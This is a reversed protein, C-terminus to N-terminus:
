SAILSKDVEVGLGPGQPVAIFGDRDVQPADSMISFRHRYDGIPPDHLLELFPAHPWSAVLHLHAIVGINGGGHHPVIKKGHLEALVGVKRLATVGNLVMSEPQLVDYVGMKVMDVFEHIGVNNEGGSLPIEVRRSIEALQEYAYRALPEELWYVGLRQMEQATECARRFDWRVGPQWDGSSQAQNGDVMITMRDGVAKRVAEVTRVDEKMTEHHLRLKIAKWGESVLKQALAAREEPTGLSVMSAYPIVKDKGGGWLKYLPQGTAKGIIDWLAIDVGATGRYPMTYVHYRLTHAHQEIDFPDKGVLCQKIGPIFQPDTGPGIGTIGADTEVQTYSGGGVQFPMKGGPNWAPEISGVDRVVKLPVAKVDTVKM